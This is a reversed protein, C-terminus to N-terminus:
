SIKKIEGLCVLIKFSEGGNLHSHVNNRVKYEIDNFKFILEIHIRKAVNKSRNTSILYLTDTELVGVKRKSSGKPSRIETRINPMRSDRFEIYIIGILIINVVAVVITGIDAALSIDIM